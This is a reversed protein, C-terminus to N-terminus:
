NIEKLDAAGSGGCCCCCCCGGGSGSGKYLIKSDLGVSSTSGFGISTNQIKIKSGCAKRENVRQSSMSKEGKRKITIIETLM